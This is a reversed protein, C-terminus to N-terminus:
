QAQQLLELLACVMKAAQGRTAPSYPDFVSASKGSLLGNYRCIAVAERGYAPVDAFPCQYGLPPAALAKGGARVLMTALQLRTIYRDPLFTGDQYGTVIQLAAAEEVFDFPYADGNYIVDSFTPNSVNEVPDTHRGLALVIVKTFQARTIFSDPRFCGDTYGSMIGAASMAMIPQYFLNGELVDPYGAHPVTTKTTTTTTSGTTSTTSASTTTIAATTTTTAPVTTTTTTATTPSTTTTTTTTPATTTTSASTTTSSSVSKSVRVQYDAIGVNGAKDYARLQVAYNGTSLHNTEWAIAYPATDDSALLSGNIYVEVRAIGGEDFADARITVFGTVESFPAPSTMSVVPPTTDPTITKGNEHASSDVFSGFDTTWYCGSPMEVFAVGIVAWYPNLMNADHSASNKWATFVGSATWFGMAINEGWRHFPPYGCAVMREGASAGVPFWDSRQTAHSFFGYKAMDLCHKRASDSLVDSVLLPQLGKSVRYDNILDVVAIEPASYSVGAQASGPWAFLAILVVVLPGLALM